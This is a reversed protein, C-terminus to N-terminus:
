RAVRDVMRRWWSPESQEYGPVVITQTHPLCLMDIYSELPAWNGTRAGLRAMRRIRKRIEPRM